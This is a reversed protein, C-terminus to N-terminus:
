TKCIKNLNQLVKKHGSSFPLLDLEELTKWQYSPVEKQEKTQLLFPLIQVRFRTFTHNVKPLKKRYILPLASKKELHTLIKNIEEEPSNLDIYFFEYLGSMIEGENVKRVLFHQNNEILAVARFRKEYQIKKEKIPLIKQQGNLNTYCDRKLPCSSCLAKKGCVQAGLEIFAEMIEWPANEPLIKFVENEILKRTKTKGIDEKIGKYRSIVRLVNGDVAAAKQKFAFSRIAGITYPGIGKIKNLEDSSSPIQGSFQQIITQAGAHLNRARSYYGLGEWTKIVSEIPAEALSQINPFKKMWEHFYPIVVEARTQQLMIESVWVSYPTPNDRWPLSRKNTQFWSRLREM